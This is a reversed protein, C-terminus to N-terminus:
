KMESKYTKGNITIAMTLTDPLAVPKEITVGHAACFAKIADMTKTGPKGDEIGCPYGLANLATQLLMVDDDKALSYTIIKALENEEKEVIIGDATLDYEFRKDMMGWWEWSRNQLVTIVLGYDKGRCELVYWDLPGPGYKKFL